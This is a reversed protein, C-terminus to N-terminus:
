DGEGLLGNGLAPAEDGACVGVAGLDFDADGDFFAAQGPCVEEYCRLHLVVDVINGFSDLGTELSKTHFIYIQLDKRFTVIINCLGSTQISIQDVVGAACFAVLIQLIDPLV